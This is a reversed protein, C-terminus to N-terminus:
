GCSPKIKCNFVGRWIVLLSAHLQFQTKSWRMHLLKIFKSKLYNNYYTPWLLLNWSSFKPYLLIIYHLSAWIICLTRSNNTVKIWLSPSCQQIIGPSSQSVNTIPLFNDTKLSVSPASTFLSEVAHCPNWSKLKWPKKVLWSTM